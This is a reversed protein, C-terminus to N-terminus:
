YFWWFSFIAFIGAARHIRFIRFINFGFISSSRNRKIPPLYDAFLIVLAVISTLKWSAISINLSSTADNFSYIWILLLCTLVVSFHLSWKCIILEYNLNIKCFTVFIILLISYLTRIKSVLTEANECRAAIKANVPFNIFTINHVTYCLTTFIQIYPTISHPSLEPRTKKFFQEHTNNQRIRKHPKIIFAM